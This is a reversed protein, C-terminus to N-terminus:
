VKIEKGPTFMVCLEFPLAMSVNFLLIAHKKRWKTPLSRFEVISYTAGNARLGGM